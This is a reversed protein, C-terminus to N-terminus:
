HFDERPGLMSLLLVDLRRKSVLSSANVGNPIPMWATGDNEQFDYFERLLRFWSVPEEYGDLSNDFPLLHRCQRRSCGGIRRESKM